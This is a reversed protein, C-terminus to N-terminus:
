ERSAPLPGLIDLAVREMPEGVQYQGLHAHTQSTLTKRTACLDCQKCYVKRRQRKHLALQRIKDTTKEASLHGATPIDHHNKIVERQLAAPVVLHIEMGKEEDGARRQYIVGNILM